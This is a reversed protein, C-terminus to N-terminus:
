NKRARAQAAEGSTSARYGEMLGALIFVNDMAVELNEDNFPAEIGADWGVVVKRLIEKDLGSTQGAERAERLMERSEESPLSKFTVDVRHSTFQGPIRENPLRITCPYVYTEDRGLKIGM